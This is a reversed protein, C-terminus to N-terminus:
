MGGPKVLCVSASFLLSARPPAATAKKLAVIRADRCQVAMARAIHTEEGSHAPTFERYALGKAFIAEAARRHLDLRDSQRYQEDWGLELWKLGEYDFEAISRIGSSTPITSACFSLGAM